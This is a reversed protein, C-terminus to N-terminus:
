GSVQLPLPDNGQVRDCLAAVIQAPASFLSLRCLNLL